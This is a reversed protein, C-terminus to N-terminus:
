HYVMTLEQQSHGHVKAALTLLRNQPVCISTMLLIEVTHKSVRNHIPFHDTYLPFRRHIDERHHFKRLALSSLSPVQNRTNSLMGLHSHFIRYKVNLNNSTKLRNTILNGLHSPHKSDENKSLNLDHFVQICNSDVYTHPQQNRAAAGRWIHCSESFDFGSNFRISLNPISLLVCLFALGWYLAQLTQM